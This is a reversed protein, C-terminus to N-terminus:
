ESYLSVHMESHHPLLSHLPLAPYITCYSVSLLILTFFSSFFFVNGNLFFVQFLLFSCQKSTLSHSPQCFIFTDQLNQVFFHFICYYSSRQLVCRFLFLFSKSCSLLQLEPICTLLALLLAFPQNGLHALAHIVSLSNLETGMICLAKPSTSLTDPFLSLCQPPAVSVFFLDILFPICYTNLPFLACPPLTVTVICHSPLPLFPTYLITYSYFPIGSYLISSSPPPYLTGLLLSSILLM